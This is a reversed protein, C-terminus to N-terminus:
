SSVRFVRDRTEIAKSLTSFPGWYTLVGDTRKRVRYGQSVRQIGRGLKQEESYVGWVELLEEQTASQLPRPLNPIRAIWIDEVLQHAVRYM